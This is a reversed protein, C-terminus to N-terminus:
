DLAIGKARCLDEDFWINGTVEPGQECIWRTGRAMATAPEFDLTPNEPDNTAFLNGPTQIRGQPSLVNVSIRDDQLEMALGQSLRELGSKIMGYFAGGRRTEKYPGPGPFVGAVSSVNIISGGGGQRIMAEAAYKTGLFASRLNIQQTRDWDEPSTELIPTFAGGSAANNIMCDLRGFRKLTYGILNQIDSDHGVDCHCYAFQELLGLEQAVAAVNEAAQRQIDAIVVAAGERLCAEVTAAGIGSAGGTVIVVKGSLRQSM